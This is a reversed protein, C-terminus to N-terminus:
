SDMKRPARLRSSSPAPRFYTLASNAGVSDTNTNSGNAISVSAEGQATWVLQAKTVVLKDNGPSWFTVSAGDSSKFIRSVLMLNNGSGNSFSVREVGELAEFTFDVYDFLSATSIKQNVNVIDGGVTEMDSGAIKTEKSLQYALVSVGLMGTLSLLFFFIIIVLSYQMWVIKKKDKNSKVVSAMVENGDITGDGDLDLAKLRDTEAVTLHHEEAYKAISTM